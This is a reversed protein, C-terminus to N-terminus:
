GQTWELGQGSRSKWSSGPDRGELMAFSSGCQVRWGWPPPPRGGGGGPSGVRRGVGVVRGLCGRKVLLCQSYGLPQCQGGELRQSGLPEANVSGYAVFPGLDPPTRPWRSGGRGKRVGWSGTGCICRRRAHSGTFVRQASSLGKRTFARPAGRRFGM